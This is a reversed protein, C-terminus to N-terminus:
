YGKTAKIEVQLEEGESIVANIINMYTVSPVPPMPAMQFGSGPEGGDPWPTTGGYIGIDTGDTGANKGPSGTQLRFDSFQNDWNSSWSISYDYSEFLPDTAMQNNGGGNSGQYTSTRFFDNILNDSPTYYSEYTSSFLKEIFVINNNFTNNAVDLSGFLTPNSATYDGLFINNAFTANKIPSNQGKFIVNNKILVTSSNVFNLYAIVNNTIISGGAASNTWFGNLNLSNILNHRVIINNVGRNSNGFSITSTIKNREIIIDELPTATTNNRVLSIGSIQFGAIYSGSADQASLSGRELTINSTVTPYRNQKDPNFGAGILALKKTVTVNESYSSPSGYVYITDGANAADVAAQITTYEAPIDEERSVTLVQATVWSAMAMFVLLLPLKKMM